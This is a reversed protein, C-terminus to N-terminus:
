FLHRFLLTVEIRYGDLPTDCNPTLTTIVMGQQVGLVQGPQNALSCRRSRSCADLVPAVAPDAPPLHVPRERRVQVQGTPLGLRLSHQVDEQFVLRATLLSRPKESTM